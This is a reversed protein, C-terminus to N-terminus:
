VRLPNQQRPNPMVLRDHTALAVLQEAFRHMSREPRTKGIRDCITAHLRRDGALRRIAGGLGAADPTAAVVGTEGDRIQETLGGVRCGILPLGLGLAIAAVGSQSCETHPLAVADHRAFIRPIEHDAIWRNEVEADIAKLRGRLPGLPGEGFLGLTVPIKEARLMELADLLLSLGKYALIRGFFLIRFAGSKAPVHLPASGDFRLDAHFLTVLRDRPVIGAAALADSVSRSLTIVPDASLADRLTWGNLLGTPDGPHPRADHVITLYRFGHSRIRPAILPTWIHPMLTVVAASRRRALEGVVNRYLARIRYGRSFAGGSTEFTDVPLLRCGIEAFEGFIENQRSICFTAQMGPMETISRALELTFRSLGRRGLYLFLVHKRVRHGVIASRVLMGKERPWPKPQGCVDFQEAHRAEITAFV